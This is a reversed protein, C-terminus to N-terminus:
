ANKKAEARYKDIAACLGLTQGYTLRSEDSKGDWEWPRIQFLHAM